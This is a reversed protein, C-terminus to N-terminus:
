ISELYYRELLRYSSKMTANWIIFKNFLVLELVCLFIFSRLDSCCAYFLVIFEEGSSGFKRSEKFIRVWLKYLLVPWM